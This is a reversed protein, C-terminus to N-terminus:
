IQLNQPYSVGHPIGQGIRLHVLLVLATAIGTAGCMGMVTGPRFVETLAGAAVTATAQGTMLGTSVLGFAHGRARVPAAHLFRRQLGVTYALGASSAGGLTASMVLGPQLTFCILGGGALLILPLVLREGREESVFRGIVVSGLLVGGAMASLLVGASSSGLHATYPIVAGEAGVVASLPLWQALILGRVRQDAFLEKNIQWTTAAAPAWSSGPGSEGGFGSSTSAEHHAPYPRVGTVRLSFKAVAAAVLCVVAAVGLVGAPSLVVLLAGSAANGLIQAAAATTTFLSRGLVYSDDHLVEPLLASTAGQAVPGFLGTVMTGTILAPVPLPAVALLSIVAFRALHFGVLVPRTPVRDAISLLLTGGILYPLMGGMYAFAAMVPSATRSYVLVSLALMKMTESVVMLTQVAFLARFGGVAFVDHYRARHTTNSAM